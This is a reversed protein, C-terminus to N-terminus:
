ETFNSFMAIHVDVRLLHTQYVHMYIYIYMYNLTGYAHWEATCYSNYM